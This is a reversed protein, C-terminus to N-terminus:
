VAADLIRAAGARGEASGAVVLLPMDKKSRTSTPRPQSAPWRRPICRTRSRNTRCLLKVSSFSPTFARVEIM